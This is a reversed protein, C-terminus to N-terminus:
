MKPFCERGQLELFNRCHSCECAWGKSLAYWRATIDQDLEVQDNGFNHKEM